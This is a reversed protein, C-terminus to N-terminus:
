SLSVFPKRSPEIRGIKLFRHVGISGLPPTHDPHSRGADGTESPVAFFQDDNQLSLHHMIRDELPNIEDLVLRRPSACEAGDVDFYFTHKLVGLNSRKVIHFM